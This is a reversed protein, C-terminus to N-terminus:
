AHEEVSLDYMTFKEEGSIRDVGSPVRISDHGNYEYPFRLVGINMLEIFEEVMQTRYRKPSILRLKDIAEPYLDIYDKYYDNSADILGRHKTGHTDTWNNLLQDAYTAIGGGGSGADIMLIDLNEYDNGTGNYNLLMQRIGKLQRNSDLKYKGNRASDVFNVCNVIDGCIGYDKDTYTYMVGVISNDGSRAPDFAITAKYGPKYMLTPIYFKENSRITAWKIIQNVGGDRTPRNYYERLAKEKDSNMASDVKDRSLLPSYPEGNMYTNIAVECSLDCVFYDRDGAIMKKAFTKYYKYFVTDMGDQSSAYLLKNPPRRPMLVPNYNDSVDTVFDSSQTAFPETAAILEASCFAAEDYFVINARRSRANDPQSNLTSITSGSHFTVSYGAPNHNFGTKNLGSCVVDNSAISKLSQISDATKGQRLVMEEIKTFTEKAQDGVSSIIYSRQNEFLLSWLTLFVDVIFSKGGNRTIVLAIHSATWMSQILWKQYDLLEIGLLDRCAIVPNCRWFNLIDANSEYVRRKATTLVSQGIM